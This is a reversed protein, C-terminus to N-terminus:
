HSLVKGILYDVMGQDVKSARRGGRPAPEVQDNIEFRRVTDRAIGLESALQIYERGQQFGAM